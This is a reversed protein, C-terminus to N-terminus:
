PKFLLNVFSESNAEDALKGLNIYPVRVLKKLKRDMLYAKYGLLALLGFGEDIEDNPSCQRIGFPWFELFLKAEKHKKLLKSMGLVAKIEAGQIDMKIFDLRDLNDQFYDDLRVAEVSEVEQGNGFMRNDAKNQTNLFLSATGEINSVAKRILFVNGYNGFRINKKLLIFSDSCPEFAYVRGTNGVLRSFLTTYYGIHAGIDLVINGRKIEKAIIQSEVPEYIGSLKLSKSVSSEDLYKLYMILCSKGSNSLGDIYAM